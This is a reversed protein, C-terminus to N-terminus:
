EFYFSLVIMKSHAENVSKAYMLKNKDRLRDAHKADLSNILSYCFKLEPRLKFFPLYFDCGLGVEAFVDYKKLKVYDNDKGSLNIMPTVGAMVYPRVNNLRQASFILDFASAIYITKLDQGETIPEGDSMKDTHNIFTLHRNGFYLTPAMRFAFNNGLRAEGLVGVNFGMDWRDQDCTVLKESAVGDEGTIMQPGVNNLELDQAHMGVIIGFHFPRLDTYPRNQVHNTQAGTNLAFAAAIIISFLKKMITIVSKRGYYKIAPPILYPLIPTCFNLLVSLHKCSHSNLLVSTRSNLRINKPQWSRFQQIKLAKM